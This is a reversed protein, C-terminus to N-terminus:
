RRPRLSAVPSFRENAERLSEPGLHVYRLSMALTSHGLLQQIQHASAGQAAWMTASTHRLLHPHVEVGVARGTDRIVQHIGSRPLPKGSRNVFFCPNCGPREHRLYRQMALLTAPTFSVFREKSGKGWVIAIREEWHIDATKLGIAESARCATDLLFLVLALNRYRWPGHYSLLAELQAETLPQKAIVPPKPITVRRFPDGQILDEEILWTVYGKISRTITNVSTTSLTGGARSPCDMLHLIFARMTAATWAAPDPDTGSAALWRAFHGLAYEHYALTAPTKGESRLARLYSRDLFVFDDKSSM